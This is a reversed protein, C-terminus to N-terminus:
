NLNPYRINISRKQTELAVYEVQILPFYVVSVKKTDAMKKDKVWEIV